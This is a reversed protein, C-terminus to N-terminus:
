NEIEISVEIIPGNKSSLVNVDEVKVNPEYKELLDYTEEILEFKNLDLSLDLNKPDRGMERSYPIEHKIMNLINEVNQIIRETGKANWNLINKSTSVKYLM